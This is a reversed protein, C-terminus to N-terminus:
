KLQVQDVWGPPNARGLARRPPDFRKELAPSQMPRTGTGRPRATPTQM